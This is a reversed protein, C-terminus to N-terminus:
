VDKFAEIMKMIADQKNKDTVWVEAFFAVKPDESSGQEVGLDERIFEEMKRIFQDESIGYAEAMKFYSEYKALPKSQLYWSYKTRKSENKIGPMKEFLGESTINLENKFWRLTKKRVNDPISKSLEVIM